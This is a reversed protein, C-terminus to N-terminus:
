DAIALLIQHNDGAIVNIRALDLFHEVPMRGNGFNRHDALGIRALALTQTREDDRAASSRWQSGLQDFEARLIKNAILNRGFKPKDAAKRFGRHALDVAFNQFRPRGIRDSVRRVSPLVDVSAAPRANVPESPTYVTGRIRSANRSVLHRRPM